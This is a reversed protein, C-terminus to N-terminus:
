REIWRERAEWQELELNGSKFCRDDGREKKRAKKVEQENRGCVNQTVM